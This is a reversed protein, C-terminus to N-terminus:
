AGKHQDPFRHKQANGLKGDADKRAFFIDHEGFGPHGTSEFYLTQNDPHIFPTQEDGKSNIVPGLNYPQDWKGNALRESVWIDKGGQGGSRDSVFYLADGNASLAPQSEWGTTNVPMGLSKPPTWHGDRVETYFLDCSGLGKKRNCATFVMYKGDATITQAGENKSTNIADIPMAKTWGTDSQTSMYFDEDRNILRTFILTQGDATLVPLYEPRDTNVGNGLRKPDFPVPNEIAQATIKCEGLLREANSILQTNEKEIAQLQELHAIAEDFKGQWYETTAVGHLIRPQYDASLAIAREFAMEAVAYNKREYEMGAIRIHADIFLPDKAVAKKFASLAKAYKGARRPM